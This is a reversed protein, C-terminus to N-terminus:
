AAEAEPHVWGIEALYVAKGEALKEDAYRKLGLESQDESWVEALEMAAAKGAPYYPLDIDELFVDILLLLQDAFTLSTCVSEENLIAYLRRVCAEYTRSTMTAWMEALRERGGVPEKSSRSEADLRKIGRELHPRLDRNLVFMESASQGPRPVCVQKKKEVQKYKTAM